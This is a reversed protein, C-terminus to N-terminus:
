CGIVSRVRMVTALRLSGAEWERYAHSPELGPANNNGLKINTVIFRKLFATILTSVFEGNKSRQLVVPSRGTSKLVSIKLLVRLGM